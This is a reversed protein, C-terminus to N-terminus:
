LLLQYVGGALVRVVGKMELSFLLATMRQVPVNCAVVLANVQMGEAHQRLQDVVRQEEESVEPFLQRQVPEAPAPTSPCEWGLAEVLEAADQLLAARNTRILENCGKSCRDGIRGPFAFCDRNYSQAIDATILAGGKEMSEVVITADAMGAVIRNRRVFNQRDPNTGSPFETLLGGHRTMQAATSRHVFPYIRDLGHALVGVTELGNALAARHAAIDIGYALGSVVLVDPVLRKLDRLFTECLAKGYETAQRTGVMNIVHLGNLDATGRYFLVLPADPCDRLRSPYAEDCATLCTIHNKEAFALEAECLRLVDPCDLAEVLRDSVDPLFEPLEHRHTFLWEASEVEELLRRATILGIGPVRSLAMRYLPERSM